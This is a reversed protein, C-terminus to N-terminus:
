RSDVILGLGQRLYHLRKQELDAEENARGGTALCRWRGISMEPEASGGGWAPLSLQWELLAAIASSPFIRRQKPSTITTRPPNRSTAPLEAPFAGHSPRSGPSM